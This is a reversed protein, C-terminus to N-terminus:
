IAVLMAEFLGSGTDGAERCEGNKEPERRTRRMVRDPNVLIELEGLIKMSSRFNEFSRYERIRPSVSRAQTRDSLGPSCSAPCFDFEGNAGLELIEGKEISNREGTASRKRECDNLSLVFVAPRCIEREAVYVFM